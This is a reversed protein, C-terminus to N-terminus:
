GHRSRSSQVRPANHDHSMQRKQRMLDLAVIGDEITRGVVAHRILSEVLDLCARELLRHPTVASKIDDLETVIV